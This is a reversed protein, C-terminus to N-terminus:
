CCDSQLLVVAQTSVGEERGEFGLKENTKPKISVSGEDLELIEEIRTQMATVHPNLKPKQAVVVADINVVSWGAERVAEYATKLLVASDAGKYNPDTDPFFTGINGLRAAGLVADTIAHLLADADSHGDLGLTHEIEIGGLIFKRGEVLRHSDYGIGIRMKMPTETLSRADEIDQPRTLKINRSSSEFVGVAYGADRMASSEDTAELNGALASKLQRYPFCQPTAIRMLGDREVDEVLLGKEDVRKVTDWVPVALVMGACMGEEIGKQTRVILNSVDQPQVFPRAADHVLVLDEDAITDSLAELTQYVTEARTKGGTRLVAAPIALTEVYEDEPSVAVYIGDIEPVDLLALVTTQLVTQGSRGLPLYQKPRDSQMRSGCGAAPVMVFVRRNAYTM